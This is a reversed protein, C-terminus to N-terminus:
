DVRLDYDFSLVMVEVITDYPKHKLFMQSQSSSGFTVVLHYVKNKYISSIHFAGSYIVESLIEYFRRFINSYTGSFRRLRENPGPFM